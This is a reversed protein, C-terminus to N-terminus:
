QSALNCHFCKPFQTVISDRPEHSCNLIRARTNHNYLINDAMTPAAVRCSCSENNPLRNKLNRLGIGSHSVYSFIINSYYNFVLYTVVVDKLLVSCHQQIGCNLLIKLIRIIIIDVKVRM